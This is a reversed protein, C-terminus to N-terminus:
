GLKQRVADPGMITAGMTKRNISVARSVSRKTRPRARRKGLWLEELGPRAVHVRRGFFLHPVVHSADGDRGISFQTGLGTPLSM